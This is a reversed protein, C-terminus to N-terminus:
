FEVKLGFTPLIQFGKKVISGDRNIFREENVNLRSYANSIDLFMVLAIKGLQLRHDVRLNLTHFDDFRESNNGTIEKSYRLYGPDNMVDSHVIYSDKPRGTAYKWKLSVAWAENFEYGLLINFLNPQSFDSNYWGEGLDDNRESQSWSYNIQGYWNDTLRKVISIDVGAAWGKGGNIRAPTTRDPRVILDSFEKYYPEVTLKYEDSLYATVGGIFHISRENKLSKNGNFETILLFDPAQYYVGTAFNLRINEAAFWALSLRPSFNDSKSFGTREYRGGINYSFSQGFKGNLEAFFSGNVANDSFINNVMGPTVILYKKSPDPRFDNRDFTYVTDTRSLIFDYSASIQSIEFGSSVGLQKSFQHNFEFKVGAEEEFGSNRYLDQVIGAQEKAPRIGNVPDNIVRGLTVAVDKNKYYGTLTFYSNSGLLSRWNIGFVRKTETQRILDTDFAKDSEYVHDINRDFLEPSFIGVVTIKNGNEFRTTSKFLIDMFSPDGLEKQGTWQLINRFDQKRASFLISTNKNIFSPGDYNVEWGLIDYTGNVTFGDFNGEKIKLDVVSSNKGGYRSAFGGAQFTAADIVGPTFISFRGGQVEQDENGRDFHAIRDFPINDVLIINDKPSGGRVSFATFEGGASSVGPLTEIARFIDGGAGPTRLIEERNYGFTNITSSQDDNFLGARITVEKGVVPSPVLEVERVGTTKERIVRTDKELHTGYGVFSFEVRYIGEPIKDVKYKGNYDSVAGLQTGLVRVTVGPLPQKTDQDYVFGSISGTNQGFILGTVLILFVILRM